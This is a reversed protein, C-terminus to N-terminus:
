MILIRWVRATCGITIYALFIHKALQYKSMKFLKEHMCDFRYTVINM